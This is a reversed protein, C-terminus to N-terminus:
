YESKRLGGARELARSDFVAGERRSSAEGSAEVESTSKVQGQRSIFYQGGYPEDPIFKLLGENVLVLIDGPYIKNKQYYQEVAKTIDLINKENQLTKLKELYSKAKEEDAAQINEHKLFDIAEDYRSLELLTDLYCETLKDDGTKQIGERVLGLYEKLEIDARLFAARTKCLESYVESISSDYELVRKLMNFRVTLDKEKEAGKWIM